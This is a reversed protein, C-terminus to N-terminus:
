LLYSSTASSTNSLKDNEQKAILIFSLGFNKVTM